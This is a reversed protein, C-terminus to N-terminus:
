VSNGGYLNILVSLGVLICISQYQEKQNGKIKIKVKIMIIITTITTSVLAAVIEEISRQM